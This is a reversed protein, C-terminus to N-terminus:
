RRHIERGVPGSPIRSISGVASLRTRPIQLDRNNAFIRTDGEYADFEARLRFAGADATLVTGTVTRVSWPGRSFERVWQREGRPSKFDDAVYSYWELAKTSAALVPCRVQAFDECISGHRWYADRHEHRLWTELWPRNHCLRERWMERWPEGVLEPDPPCGNYAFM